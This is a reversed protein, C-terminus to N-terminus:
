VAVLVPKVAPQGSAPAMLTLLTEAKWRHIPHQSAWQTLADVAQWRLLVMSCTAQQTANGTALADLVMPLALQGTKVLQHEIELAVPKDATSLADILCRIADVDGTNSMVTWNIVPTPETAFRKTLPSTAMTLQM